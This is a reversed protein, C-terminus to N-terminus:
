CKRLKSEMATAMSTNIAATLVLRRRGETEDVYVIASDVNDPSGDPRDLNMSRTLDVTQESPRGSTDVTQRDFDATPTTLVDNSRNLDATLRLLDKM